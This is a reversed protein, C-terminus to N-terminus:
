CGAEGCKACAAHQLVKEFRANRKTKFASEASGECMLAAWVPYQLERTGAGTRKVFTGRLRMRLRASERFVVRVVVLSKPRRGLM